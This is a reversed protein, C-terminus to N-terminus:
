DYDDEGEADEEEEELEQDLAMELEKDYNTSLGAAHFFEAENVDGEADEESGEEDSADM